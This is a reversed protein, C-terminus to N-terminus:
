GSGCERMEAMWLRIERDRPTELPHFMAKYLKAVNELVGVTRDSLEYAVPKGQYSSVYTATGAGDVSVVGELYTGADVDMNADEFRKRLPHGKKEEDSSTMEGPHAATNRVQIIQGFDRGFLEDAEKRAVHDLKAWITPAAESKKRIERLRARFGHAVIAGNRGAIGSWASITMQREIAARDRFDVDERMSGLALNLLSLTNRFESIPGALGALQMWIERAAAHEDAPIADPDIVVIDLAVETGTHETPEHEQGQYSLSRAEERGLRLHKM